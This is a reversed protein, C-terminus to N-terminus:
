RTNWANTCKEVQSITHKM